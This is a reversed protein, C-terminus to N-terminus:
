TDGVSRKLKCIRKKLKLIKKLTLRKENSSKRKPNNNINTLEGRLHLFDAQLNGLEIYKKRNRFKPSFLFKLIDGFSDMVGGM